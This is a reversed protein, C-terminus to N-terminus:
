NAQPKAKQQATMKLCMSDYNKKTSFPMENTEVFM